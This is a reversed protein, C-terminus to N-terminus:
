NDLYNDHDVKKNLLQELYKLLPWCFGFNRIESTGHECEWLYHKEDKYVETMYENNHSYQYVYINLGKDVAEKVISKQLHEMLQLDEKEEKWLLDQSKMEETYTLKLNGM